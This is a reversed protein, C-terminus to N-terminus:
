LPRLARQPAKQPGQVQNVLGGGMAWAGTPAGGGGGHSGTAAWSHHNVLRKFIIYLCFHLLDKKLIYVLKICEEFREPTQASRTCMSM